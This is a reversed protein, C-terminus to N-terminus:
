EDNTLVRCLMFGDDPTNKHAFRAATQLPEEGFEADGRAVHKNVGEEVTDVATHFRFGLFVRAENRVAVAPEICQENSLLDLCNYRQANRRIFGPLEPFRRWGSLCGGQDMRRNRM